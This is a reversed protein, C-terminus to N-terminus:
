VAHCQRARAAILVSALVPSIERIIAVSALSALLREAGLLKFVELGQLAIVMGFPFVVALVLLMCRRMCVDMVQITDRFNM